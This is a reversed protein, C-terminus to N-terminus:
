DSSIFLWSCLTICPYCESHTGQPRWVPSNNTVALSCDVAGPLVFTLSAVPVQPRRKRRTARKGDFRRNNCCVGWPMALVLGFIVCWQTKFWWKPFLLTLKGQTWDLINETYFALLFIFRLVELHLLLGPAWKRQLTRPPVGVYFHRPHEDNRKPIPIAVKSRVKLPWFSFGFNKGYLYWNPRSTSM